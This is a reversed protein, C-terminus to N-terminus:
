ALGLAEDAIESHVRNRGSAKAKYLAKDARKEVEGISADHKQHQAVGCSVTITHTQNNFHLKNAQIEKQIRKALLAADKKDAEPLLILFEDGGLRFAYDCKRKLELLIKALHKLVMDGLIHGHLDNFDKFHDIDLIILSLDISYRKSRSSEKETIEYYARRNMLGTLVDTRASKEAIVREAEAITKEIEAISREEQNVRIRDALALSLLIADIIMGIDLAKYTLASYTIEGMVTLATIITGILGSVTGLIFFKATRNGKTWSLIGIAFVYASIVASLAIAFMVHYRYGGAASLLAILILGLSIYETAKNLGTHTKKLDLFSRAFLLTTLSFLFITTAQMWNQFQPLDAFFLKFTYGNYSANMVLFASVFLVYYAHYPEKIGFFLFLNYFLMAFLVGFLLGILVSERNQELLFEKENLISATFVFPDRTKVQIYVTSVGPKFSLIQNILYHDISRQAYNFSNGVEYQETKGQASIVNIQIYDLWAPEFVLLRSLSSEQTNNLEFRYWYASSTFPYSFTENELPTFASKPFQSVQSFTLTAASDEYMLMSRGIHHNSVSLDLPSPFALVYLPMFALYLFLFIRKYM